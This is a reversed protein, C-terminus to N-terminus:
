TTGIDLVGFTGSTRSRVRAPPEPAENAPPLVRRPMDNM